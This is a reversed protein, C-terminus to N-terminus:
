VSLQDSTVSSQDHDRRQGQIYSVIAPLSLCIMGNILALLLGYTLDTNM